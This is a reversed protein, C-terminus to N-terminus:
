GMRLAVADGRKVGTLRAASDRWASVELFGASGWIAFLAEPSEGGAAYFERLETVARSGVTLRFSRGKLNTGPAEDRAFTTVCNGFRDVHLVSGHWVGDADTAPRLPPLKVFDHIAPGLHSPATGVALAAAVPAFVDRGQFTASTPRQFLQEATVHHVRAGSERQLVYDLLGNDPAVFLQGGAAAAIPRRASGVGPDVVALHVTGPPFSRHVALLTFAAAAVDHAPVDHTVDILTAGPCRGLIVGKVAAVFYDATGFDTLLTVIPPPASKSSAPM